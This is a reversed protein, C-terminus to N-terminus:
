SRAQKPANLNTFYVFAKPDIRLTADLKVASTEEDSQKTELPELIKSGLRDRNFRREVSRLTTATLSLWKSQDNSCDSHLERLDYPNGDGAATVTKSADEPADTLSVCKPASHYILHCLGKWELDVTALSAYDLTKAEAGGEVGLPRVSIDKDDVVSPNGSQLTFAPHAMNALRCSASLAGGGDQSVWISPEGDLILEVELEIADSGSLSLDSLSLDDDVM